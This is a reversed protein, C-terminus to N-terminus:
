THDTSLIEQYVINRTYVGDHGPFRGQVGDINHIFLKANTAVGCRGLAVYLQGHAFVPEPLYVGVQELSQGQAKNITMAFALRVPFQRRQMTFPLFGDATQLDMRPLYTEEGAFPGNVIRLRLTYRQMGTVILRTGNCLGKSININRLLIVPAGIKLCLEHPPLGSAKISNLFEVPYVTTQHEDGVVSDASSFTQLQGPM